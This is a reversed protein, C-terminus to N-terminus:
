LGHEAALAAVATPFGLVAALSYGRSVSVLSFGTIAAFTWHLVFYIHLTAETM